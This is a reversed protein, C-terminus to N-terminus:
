SVFGPNGANLRIVRDFDILLRTAFASYKASVSAQGPFKSAEEHHLTAYYEASATWIQWQL